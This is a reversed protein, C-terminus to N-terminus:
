LHLALSFKVFDVATQALGPAGDDLLTLRGAALALDSFDHISSGVPMAQSVNWVM